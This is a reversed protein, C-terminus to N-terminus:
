DTCTWNILGAIAPNSKMGLQHAQSFVLEGAGDKYLFLVEKGSVRGRAPAKPHATIEYDNTSGKVTLWISDSRDAKMQTPTYTAAGHFGAVQIHIRPSGTDPSPVQFAGGPTDGHAAAAACNRGTFVETYTKRLKLAGDVQIEAHFTARQGPSLGDSHTTSSGGSCAGLMVSLSLVAAASALRRASMGTPAAPPMRSARNM